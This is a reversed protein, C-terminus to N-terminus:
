WHGVVSVSLSASLLLASFSALSSQPAVLATGFPDLLLHLLSHLALLDEDRDAALALTTTLGRLGLSALM